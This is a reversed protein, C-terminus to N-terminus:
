MSVSEPSAKGSCHRLRLTSWLPGLGAGATNMASSLIIFTDGRGDHGCLISGVVTSGDLAVFCTEPNRKLFAGVGDRSDDLSRLGMNGTNAWLEFVMDYDDMTMNRIM